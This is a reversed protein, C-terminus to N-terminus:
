AQEPNILAQFRPDHRIPDFDTDNKARDRYKPELEIARQLNKFATTFSGIHSYICAKSYWARHFSDEIEIVRNFSTVAQEIEGLRRLISAYTYWASYSDCQIELAKRYSFIAEEIQGLNEFASGRKDWSLIHKPEIELAKDYSVIAEECQGLNYLAIGLYYWAQHYMPHIELAKKYSFIAKEFQRMFSLSVGHRYWALYDDPKISLVKEYSILSEEYKGLDCLAIGHNYWAEYKNPKIALAKEYSAIAEESLGLDCLAIGRNYWAEHKNPELNLARDYSKIAEKARKLNNLTNGHNYWAEYKDPKIALAKEYSAIAEQDRGLDNLANGRNFWTEHLDPQLKLIRDLCSITLLLDNNSAFLAGQQSLYNVKDSLSTTDAEILERLEYIKQFREEPSLRLFELYGGAKAWAKIQDQEALDGPLVFTGVRWDYFDPCRLILYRVMFRPVVFVIPRLLRDRWCERMQNFHHLIQPVDCPNYNHLDAEDWGLARKADEYGLIATDLGRVVLVEFNETELLEMAESYVSVSERNLELVSVRSFRGRLRDVVADEQGRHCQVFFWGAGENNAIARLLQEFVEAETEPELEDEDWDLFDDAKM